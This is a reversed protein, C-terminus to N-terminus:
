RADLTRRDACRPGLPSGLDEVRLGELEDGPEVGPELGLAPLEQSGAFGALPVVVSARKGPVEGGVIGDRALRGGGPPDGGKGGIEQGAPDLDGPGDGIGLHDDVHEGPRLRALARIRGHEVELVRHLGRPLVDNPPDLIQPARDVARQAEHLGALAALGGLLVPEVGVVHREEHHPHAPKMEVLRVHGDAARRDRGTEEVQREGGPVGRPPEHILPLGGLVVDGLALVM